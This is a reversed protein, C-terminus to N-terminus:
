AGNRPKCSSQQVMGYCHRYWACRHASGLGAKLGDISRPESRRCRATSTRALQDTMGSIFDQLMRNRYYFEWLPRDGSTEAHPKLAEHYARVLQNPLRRALMQLHPEGRCGGLTLADFVPAPM